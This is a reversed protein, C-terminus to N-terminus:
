GDREKRPRGDKKKPGDRVKQARGDKNKRKGRGRGGAIVCRRLFKEGREERERSGECVQRSFACLLTPVARKSSERFEAQWCGVARTPSLPSTLLETGGLCLGQFGGKELEKKRTIQDLVSTEISWRWVKKGLPNSKSQPNEEDFEKTVGVRKLIGLLPLM